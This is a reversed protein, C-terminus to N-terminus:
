SFDILISRRRFRRLISSFRIDVFVVSFIPSFRVVVFIASFDFTPSFWHFVQSFRVDVEEQGGGPRGM